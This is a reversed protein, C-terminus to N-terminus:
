QNMVIAQRSQQHINTSKQQSLSPAFTHEKSEMSGIICSRLIKMTSSSGKVYLSHAHFNYFTETLNLNFLYYNM